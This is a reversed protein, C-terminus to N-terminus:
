EALTAILPLGLGLGPSDARPKCGLGDDLVLAKVERGEPDVTLTVTVTGPTNQRFAHVVANTIAESLALKLDSIPPDVVERRAAFDVVHTRLRPVSDPVAPETWTATTMLDPHGPCRAPM